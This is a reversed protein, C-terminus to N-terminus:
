EVLASVLPGGSGGPLGSTTCPSNPDDALGLFELHGLDHPGTLPHLMFMCAFGQIRDRAAYLVPVLAVRRNTGYRQHEGNVGPTYLRLNGQLQNRNGFVILNGDQVDVGGDDYSAFKTRKTLFNEATPHSGPAPSGSWANQPPPNTWNTSTYSYGSYDPRSTEGVTEGQRYIGFRYNWERHVSTQAGPTGLDIDDEIRTGCVESLETKTNHASKTADLNYWGLEGSGPLKNGYVTIWEGVRFGYNNSSNDNRPRLAVPIPCVTQASTRTAVARTRVVRTAPYTVPDNFFAGMAQLLWTQVGGHTHQCQAYKAAAPTTTQVYNADKFSIDAATIQGDGRWDQSQLDVRNLNGATIGANTARTLSDSLGDLEEAAALACSDMATQLEAKVVFLRGFDLAIGMFGLLFLLIMATTLMVAGGQRKNTVAEVM